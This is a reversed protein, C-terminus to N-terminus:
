RSEQMLHHSLEIGFFVNKWSRITVSIRVSASTVSLLSCMAKATARTHLVKLRISQNISFEVFAHEQELLPGM